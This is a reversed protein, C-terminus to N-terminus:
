KQPPEIAQIKWPDTIPIEGSHEAGHAQPLNRLTERYEEWQAVLSAPMDSPTKQDAAILLRNRWTRIDDWTVHPKKWPYPTVFDELDTDYVIETMEYTHDPPSNLPRIYVSGDLLTEKHNELQSYDKVEDAGVLTALLPNENCDVLIKLQDLPTPYVEGDEAETIFGGTLKLTEKVVFVWIKDPGKYIWSGTKNLETTEKLYDDPMNYTFSKEIITNEAM